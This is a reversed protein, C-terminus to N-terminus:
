NWLSLGFQTSLITELRHVPLGVVNFYDGRIGEIWLTATDQIGYAGAKDMPEGSAIYRAILDDSLPAFTVETTEHATALREATCVAVGSTVRHTNGSLESLM